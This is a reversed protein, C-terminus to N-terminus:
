LEKNADKMSGRVAKMLGLGSEKIEQLKDKKEKELAEYRAQLAKVEEDFTTGATKEEAEKGSILEDLAKLDMAQYKAILKKKDADCLDINKVSCMPKLNEKAFKKLDKADRGGEYSQLDAPDGYKITPFGEVGHTECLDKGAATCDVDAVLATASGEYEKMLKDWAPKM